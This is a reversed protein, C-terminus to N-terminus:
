LPHYRREVHGELEDPYFYVPRLAGAAYRAVQDKFHASAPDGSEGGISVARAKVREDFEVIAVFSNGSTGYYARTGPYRHAGFSALSGWRGSAFAIGVSPAADSFREGMEAPLHEFRNVREWPVRWDGYDQRLRDCVSALAALRREGDAHDAIEDPVTAPPAKQELAAARRAQAADKLEDWMRDGWLVALTTAASPASWRLDWARLLAVPEGLAARRADQAPLADYDQPLAPLAREFGTLYSDFALDRLTDPTFSRGGALLKLAHRGRANEGATDMYSPDRHLLVVAFSGDLLLL